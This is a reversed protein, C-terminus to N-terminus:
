LLRVLQPAYPPINCSCSSMRHFIACDVACPLGIHRRGSSCSAYRCSYSRVPCACGSVGVYLTTRRHSLFLFAIVATAVRPKCIQFPRSRRITILLWFFSVVSAFIICAVVGFISGFHCINDNRWLGPHRHVLWLSFSIRSLGKWYSSSFLACYSFHSLLNGYNFGFQCGVSIRRWLRSVAIGFIAGLIKTSVRRLLRLFSM